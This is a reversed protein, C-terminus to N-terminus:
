DVDGVRRLRLLKSIGWALPTWSWSGLDSDSALEWALPDLELSLIDVDGVLGPSCGAVGGRSPAGAGAVRAPWEM